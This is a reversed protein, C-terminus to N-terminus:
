KKRIRMGLERAGDHQLLLDACPKGGRGTRAGVQLYFHASQACLYLVTEFLLKNTIASGILDCHYHLLRHLLCQQMAEDKKKARPHVALM